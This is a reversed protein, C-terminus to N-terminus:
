MMIFVRNVATMSYKLIIQLPLSLASSHSSHLNPQRGLSPLSKHSIHLGNIQSLCQLNRTWPQSSATHRRTRPVTLIFMSGFCSSCTAAGLNNESDFLFWFKNQTTYIYFVTTNQLKTFIWSTQYPFESTTNRTANELWAHDCLIICNSM